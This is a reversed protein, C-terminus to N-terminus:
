RGDSSGGTTKVAPAARNITSNVSKWVNQVSPAESFFLCAFALFLFGLLISFEISEQGAASARFRRILRVLTM